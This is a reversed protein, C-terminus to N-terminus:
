TARTRTMTSLSFGSAPSIPWRRFMARIMRSWQRCRFPPPFRLGSSPAWASAPAARREGPRRADRGAAPGAGPRPGTRGPDPERVVNAQRFRDFIYPLFDAAMGEGTDEVTIVISADRESPASTCSAAPRRSSSPMRCCTGSSRSCGTPTAAFRPCVPGSRPGCASARQRPRRLSSTSRRWRRRRGSRGTGIDLRLKGSVIRAMDLMDEILVRRRRRTATSSKSPAPEPDGRRRAPRAPDEIWGIVANLPTRIEHSLTALFEDKVRSAEEAQVRAREADAIQRRLEPESTVRETVDDIVTITGVVAGGDILPAIRRARRCSSAAATTARSRCACCTDTCGTRRARQGRRQSRRSLACRSRADGSRSVAAALPTGIVNAASRGTSRELWRNWSRM